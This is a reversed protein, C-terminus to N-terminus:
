QKQELKREAPGTLLKGDPDFRSGHCPCDWTLDDSNWRLLCKKHPCVPGVLHLKRETDLYAGTKRGRYNVIMADGMELQSVDGEAPRLKSLVIGDVARVVTKMLESGSASLSFRGPSFLAAAPNERGCILDQILEASVMSLATGWTGFGGAFFLEGRHGLRGIYPLHDTSECDEACWRTVLEANKYNDRTSDEIRQYANGKGLGSIHGEGSVILRDGFSRYNYGGDAGVYMEYLTEAGTFACAHAMRRHLLYPFIGGVVSPAPYNTTVVTYKATVSGNECIVRGKEYGTVQSNEYVTLREALASIIAVPDYQASNEYKLTGATKFPLQTSTGYEHRIGAKETLDRIKALTDTDNVSYLTCPLKEFSCCINEESILKEYDSVAKDISKAFIVAAKEGHSSAIDSLLKGMALTVKATSYASQGSAISNKEILVTDLGASSLKYACLIGCLGGGIVAADCSIDGELAPYHNKRKENQWISNVGFSRLIKKYYGWFAGTFYMFLQRM